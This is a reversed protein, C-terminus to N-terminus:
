VVGIWEPVQGVYNPAQHVFELDVPGMKDAIGIASGACQSQRQVGGLRTSLITSIPGPPMPVVLPSGVAPSVLRSRSRRRRVLRSFSSVNM